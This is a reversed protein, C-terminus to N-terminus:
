ATRALQSPPPHLRRHPPACYFELDSRTDIGYNTTRFLMTSDAMATHERELQEELNPNPPGVLNELGGFFADLGGDTLCFGDFILDFTQAWPELGIAYLHAHLHWGRRRVADCAHNNHTHTHAHHAQTRHAHSLTCAAALEGQIADSPGDSGREQEAPGHRGVAPRDAERSLRRAAVAARLTYAQIRWRALHTLLASVSLVADRGNEDAALTRILTLHSHRGAPAVLVRSILKHLELSAVGDEGSWDRSFGSENAEGGDEAEAADAEQQRRGSGAKDAEKTEDVAAAEAEAAAADLAKKASPSSVTKELLTSRIVDSLADWDEGMEKVVQRRIEQKEQHLDRVEAQLRTLEAQLKVAELEKATDLEKAAAPAASTGPAPLAAADPMSQRARKADEMESRLLRLENVMDAHPAPSWPSLPPDTAGASAAPSLPTSLPTSSVATQARILATRLEAELRRIMAKDSEARERSSEAASTARQLGARIVTMEHARDAEQLKLRENEAALRQSATSLRELEAELAATRNDVQAPLRSPEAPSGPLAPAVRHGTTRRM